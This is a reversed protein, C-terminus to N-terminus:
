QFLDEPMEPMPPDQPDVIRQAWEILRFVYNRVTVERRRLDDIEKQQADMRASQKDIKEDQATIRKQLQTSFADSKDDGRTLWGVLGGSGALAVVVAIWPGANNM